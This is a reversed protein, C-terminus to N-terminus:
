KIITVAPVFFISFVKTAKVEPSGHQGQQMVDNVIMKAIKWAMEEQAQFCVVTSSNEM